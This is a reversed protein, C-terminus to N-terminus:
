KVPPTAAAVAELSTADAGNVATTKAATVISSNDINDTTINDVGAITEGYSVAYGSSGAQGDHVKNGNIKQPGFIGKVAFKNGVAWLIKKEDAKSLVGDIWGSYLMVVPYVPVSNGSDIDHPVNKFSVGYYIRNLKRGNAFRTRKLMGGVDDKSAIIFHAIAILDGGGVTGDGPLVQLTATGNMLNNTITITSGDVLTEQFASDQAPQANFFTDNLKMCKSVDIEGSGIQGALFPHSFLYINGGATRFKASPLRMARSNAYM